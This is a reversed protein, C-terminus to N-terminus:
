NIQSLKQKLYEIKEVPSPDTGHLIACWYSLWDGYNIMHLFREQFSGGDIKLIYQDIEIKELIEKTIEIRQKVRYSDDEDLLWLVCLNELIHQNNQWGVIENHNLEPLVNTYALMKSNECLQGKLRTAAIGMNSNYSYIIPLKKYIRKALKFVPNKEDDTGYLLRKEKLVNITSDIWSDGESNIINLKSLLRFLPVISYAVAARPQLGSPITIMDKKNKGLEEALKGGTTLGVIEIGRDLAIKLISLTEETNGSYSSCILLSKNDVWPPITYDRIIFFPIKLKEKELVSIVDGGIASGGMGALVIKDINKYSNKLNMNNSIKLADILYEPFDWISNFMNEKDILKYM